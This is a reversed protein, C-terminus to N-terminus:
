LTLDRKCTARNSSHVSFPELFAMIPRRQVLLRLNTSLSTSCWELLIFDPTALCGKSVFVWANFPIGNLPSGTINNQSTIPSVITVNGLAGSDLSANGIINFVEMIPACFVGAAQPQGASNSHFFWFFVPSFTVNANGCNPVSSVGYQQSSDQPDFPVVVQCPKASTGTITYNTSSTTDLQIATPASCTANTRIGVTQAAM